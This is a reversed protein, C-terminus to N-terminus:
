KLFANLLEKVGHIKDSELNYLTEVVSLFDKDNRMRVIIDSIVDNNKQEAPREMQCDYGWLWMESVNLVKAIKYIAEQKPEYRGSIYHSISGRDIGTARVIDAQKMKRIRMAEKIRESTTEIRAFENEM